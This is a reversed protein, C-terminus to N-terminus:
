PTTYSALAPQEETVTDVLRRLREVRQEKRSGPFDLRSYYMVYSFIAAFMIRVRQLADDPAIGLRQAVADAIVRHGISIFEPLTGRYPEILEPCMIWTLYFGRMRDVFALYDRGVAFLLSKADQATITHARIARIFDDLEDMAKEVFAGLISEKTAYYKQLLSPTIRAERAIMRMSTGYYGRQEFLASAAELIAERRELNAPRGVPNPIAAYGRERKKRKRAVHGLRM